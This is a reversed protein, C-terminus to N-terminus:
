KASIGYRPDQPRAVVIGIADEVQSVFAELDRSVKVSGSPSAHILGVENGTKYVLGTHTVDLGQIDTAIAIIDGPQLQNYVNYIQNTPIYNFKLRKLSEEMNVVCQYEADNNALKPYSQRHQSMFNLTKNVTVAGLNATINTVTGRKQNDSIWESFYHLRSCYGNLEGNRYRQDKLHNVFTQPSYDQVAVGRAIALVTEVFLVCDFQTLNIILTEKNSEDLLGAKYEAGVFKDAVVQMIESLYRQSLNQKQAFNMIGAFKAQDQAHSLSNKEAVPGESALNLMINASFKYQFTPNHEFINQKQEVRAPSAFNLMMAYSIPLAFITLSLHKKM